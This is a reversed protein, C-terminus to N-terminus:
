KAFFDVIKELMRAFLLSTVLLIGIVIGMSIWYGLIQLAIIGM